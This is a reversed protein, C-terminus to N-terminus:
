IASWSAGSLAGKRRNVTIEQFGLCPKPLILSQVAKFTLSLDHTGSVATKLLSTARYKDSDDSNASDWM